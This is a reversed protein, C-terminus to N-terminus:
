QLSDMAEIKMTKDYHTRAPLGGGAKQEERWARISESIRVGRGAM